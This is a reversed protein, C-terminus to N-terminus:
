QVGKPGDKCCINRFNRCVRGGDLPYIPLLNYFSQVAACCALRPLFRFFLVTLLGALPGALACLLEERAPLPETRIVAGGLDARFGFIRRGYLWLVALHGLEHVAAAAAAALVWRADTLLLMAGFFVLARGSVSWEVLGLSSRRAGSRLAM